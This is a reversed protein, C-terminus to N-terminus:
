ATKGLPITVSVETGKGPAASIMFRGGLAEVRERMGILGLGREGRRALAAEVDFGVGDDRVIALIIPGDERVEVRVNKARAHRSAFSVRWGTSFGMCNESPKPESPFKNSWITWPM